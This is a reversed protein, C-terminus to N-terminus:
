QPEPTESASTGEFSDDSPADFVEVLAWGAVLVLLVVAAIVSKKMVYAGSLVGSVGAARASPLALTTM